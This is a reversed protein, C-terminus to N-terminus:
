LPSGQLQFSNDILGYDAGDIVGDHNFDGNAYGTTGPFQVWNDIIGYDAGDVVGDFNVDGTYTYKVLVTTADVTQGSFMATESGTLDFLRAAEAVALTAVGARAQATTTVLGDGTWDGYTYGRAILGTVGSYVAGNWSGIPSASVGGDYDVILDNDNLNLTSTGGITLGSTRLVRSGNAGVSLTAGGTLTLGAVTASGGLNVLKGDISVHDGAGPVGAPSWNNASSWSGGGGAGGPGVFTKGSVSSSEFAGIDITGGVIRPFGAGRQDYSPAGANDGANIAPSGALLAMTHTPGGNNQLPGLQPNVNLLDSDVFGWAGSTNGILNHGHSTSGGSLDPGSDAGNNAIVSDYIQVSGGSANIGGGYSPSIGTNYPPPPDGIYEGYGGAAYNGAITSHRISLTGGAVYVGGGHSTGRNYDGQGGATGNGTITSHAIVATGGGVYLAGGSGGDMGVIIGYPYDGQYFYSGGGSGNGTLTSGTITLAGVSYIGGGGPDFGYSPAFNNVLTSNSVTLVGENFIGGGGGGAVGHTITLGHVEARTTSGVIKFVRSQDNGSITLGAGTGQIILNKAIALEGSTLTITQGALAPAFSITDGSQAAAIQARLSGVGSDTANSVTLANLLRRSELSELQFNTIRAFRPM